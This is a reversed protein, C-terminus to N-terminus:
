YSIDLCSPRNDFQALRSQTRTSPLHRNGPPCRGDNSPPAPLNTRTPQDGQGLRLLPPPHPPEVPRRPGLTAPARSVEYNPAAIQDRTDQPIPRLVLRRISPATRASSRGATVPTSAGPRKATPGNGDRPGPLAVATFRQPHLRNLTASPAVSRCPRVAAPLPAASLVLLVLAALCPHFGFNRLM